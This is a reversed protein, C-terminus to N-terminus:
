RDLLASVTRAEVAGGKAEVIITASEGRPETLSLAADIMPGPPGLPFEGGLLTLSWGPPLRDRLAGTIERLLDTESYQGNLTM